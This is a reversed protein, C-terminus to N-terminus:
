IFRSSESDELDSLSVIVNPPPWLFFISAIAFYQRV